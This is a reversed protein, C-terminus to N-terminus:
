YDHCRRGRYGRPATFVGKQERMIWDYEGNPIASLAENGNSWGPPLTLLTMPFYGAYIEAADQQVANVIRTGDRGHRQPADVLYFTIGRHTAIGDRPKIFDKAHALKM